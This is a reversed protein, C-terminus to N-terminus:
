GRGTKKPQAKLEPIDFDFMGGEESVSTLNKDSPTAFDPPVFEVGGLEQPSKMVPAGPEQEPLPEGNPLQFLSFTVKYDGPQLGANASNFKIVYNGNGDTVAERMNLKPDVPIFRVLGNKFPESGGITVKGKVSALKPVDGGGCGVCMVGILLCTWVRLDAPLCKM